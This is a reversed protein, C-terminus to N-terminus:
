SGSRVSGGDLSPTRCLRFGYGTSASRGRRRARWRAACSAARPRGRRRRRAGAREMRFATGRRRPRGRLRADTAAHGNTERWGRSPLRHRTRGHRLQRARRATRPRRPVRTARRRRCRAAPLMRRALPRRARIRQTMARNKDPVMATRWPRLDWRSPRYCPGHGHRAWLRGVTVSLERSSLDEGPRGVCAIAAVDLRM